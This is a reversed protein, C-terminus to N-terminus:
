ENDREKKIAMCLQDIHSGRIDLDIGYDDIASIFESTTWEDLIMTGIKNLEENEVSMKNGRKNFIRDWGQNFTKQNGIRSKSGKSM